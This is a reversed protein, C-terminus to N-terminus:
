RLKGFNESLRTQAFLASGSWVVGEATGSQWVIGFRVMQLIEITGKQQQNAGNFLLSIELFRGWRFPWLKGVRAFSQYFDYFQCKQATEEMIKKKLFNHPLVM